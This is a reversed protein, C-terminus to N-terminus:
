YRVSLATFRVDVRSNLKLGFQPQKDIDFTTVFLMSRRRRHRCAILLLYHAYIPM